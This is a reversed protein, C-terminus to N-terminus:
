GIRVTGGTSNTLVLAGGNVTTASSTLLNLAGSNSITLEGGVVLTGSVSTAGGDAITLKGGPNVNLSGGASVILPPTTPVPALYASGSVNLVGGLGITSTGGNTATWVGSAGINMTGSGLTLMAAGSLTLDQNFGAANVNLTAGGNVDLAGFTPAVMPTNYDVTIAGVSGVNANQGAGPVVNVGTLDLDWNAATNWDGGLTNTFYATQSRATGIGLAM